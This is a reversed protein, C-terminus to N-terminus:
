SGADGDPLKSAKVNAKRQIKKVLKKVEPLVFRKKFHM